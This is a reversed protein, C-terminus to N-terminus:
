ARPARRSIPAPAAAPTPPNWDAPIDTMDFHGSEAAGALWRKIRSHDLDQPDGVAAIIANMPLPRLYEFAVGDNVLAQTFRNHAIIADGVALLADTVQRAVAAYESAVAACVLASGEAHALTLRPQLIEVAARINTLERGLAALEEDGARTQTWVPEAIPLVPEPAPAHEGLLALLRPSLPAKPKPAIAIEVGPGELVKAARRDQKATIVKMEAIIQDERISFGALRDSLDGWLPYLVRMTPRETVADPNVPTTPTSKPKFM